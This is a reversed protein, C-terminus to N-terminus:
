LDNFEFIRTSGDTRSRIRRHNTEDLSHRLKSEGVRWKLKKREEVQIQEYLNEINTNLQNLYLENQEIRETLQKVTTSLKIQELNMEQVIYILTELM